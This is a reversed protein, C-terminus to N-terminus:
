LQLDDSLKIGLPGGCSACSGDKNVREALVEFGRRSIALEGCRPCLTDEAGPVDVNGLYVFSLGADFGIVM